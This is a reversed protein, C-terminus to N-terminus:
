GVSKKQAARYKALEAHLWDGAKSQTGDAFVILYPQGSFSSKSAIHDIFQDATSLMDKAQAYKMAIHEAAKVSDYTVGNRIFELRSDKVFAILHTIAAGEDPSPMAMAARPLFSLAFFALIIAAFKSM